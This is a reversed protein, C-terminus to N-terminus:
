SFICNKIRKGTSCFIICVQYKYNENILPFALEMYYTHQYIIWLTSLVRLGNICNLSTFTTQPTLPSTRSTHQQKRNDVNKFVQRMNTYISFSILSAHPKIIAKSNIALHRIIADYITSAVILALFIVFFAVTIWFMPPFSERARVECTDVHSYEPIFLGKSAFHPLLLSRIEESPCTAPVCVSMRFTPITFPTVNKMQIPVLCNQGQIQGLSPHNHVFNYCQDFNGYDVM